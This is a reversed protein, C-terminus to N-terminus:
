TQLTVESTIPKLSLSHGPENIFLLQIPMRHDLIAPHQAQASARIGRWPLRQNGRRRHSSEKHAQQHPRKSRALAKPGYCM